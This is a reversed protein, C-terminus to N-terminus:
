GDGLIVRASRRCELRRQARLEEAIAVRARHELVRGARTPQRDGGSHIVHDLPRRARRRVRFAEFVKRAQQHGRIEHGSFGKTNDLEDAVSPRTLARGRRDEVLDRRRQRLRSVGTPLAQTGVLAGVEFLEPIAGVDLDITVGLQLQCNAEAQEVRDLGACPRLLPRDRGLAQRSWAVVSVREPVGLREDQGHQRVGSRVGSAIGQPPAM